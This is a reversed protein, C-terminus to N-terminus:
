CNELSHRRGSQGQALRGLPSGQPGEQLVDRSNLHNDRRDPERNESVWMEASDPEVEKKISYFNLDLWRHSKRWAEWSVTASAPNQNLDLFSRTM